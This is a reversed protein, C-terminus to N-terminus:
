KRSYFGISTASNQKNITILAQDVDQRSFESVKGADYLRSIVMARPIAEVQAPACGETKKAIYAMIDEPLPIKRTFYKLMEIRMHYDPRTMKVVLDFRNPRESLAKDLSALCNTTAVTVIATQEEIGDLVNLLSILPPTGRFLDSRGQAMMDLDEIFVIAPSLDQAMAYLDSVYDGQFM